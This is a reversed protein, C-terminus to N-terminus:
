QANTSTSNEDGSYTDKSELFSGMAGTAATFRVSAERFFDSLITDPSVMKGESSEQTIEEQRSYRERWFGYQSYLIAAGLVCTVTGAFIAAHM